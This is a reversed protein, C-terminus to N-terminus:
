VKHEGNCVRVGQEYLTEASAGPSTMLAHLKRLEDAEDKLVFKDPTDAGYTDRKRNHVVVRGNYVAVVHLPQM